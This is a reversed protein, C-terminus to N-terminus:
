AVIDVDHDDIVEKESKEALATVAMFLYAMGLGFVMTVIGFIGFAAFILIQTKDSSQETSLTMSLVAFLMALLGLVVPAWKMVKAMSELKNKEM